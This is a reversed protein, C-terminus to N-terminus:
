KVRGAPEGLYLRDALGGDKLGLRGRPAGNVELIPWRKGNAVGRGRVASSRRRRSKSRPASAGPCGWTLCRSVAGGRGYGVGCSFEMPFRCTKGGNEWTQRM